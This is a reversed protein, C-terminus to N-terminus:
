TITDSHSCTGCTIAYPGLHNNGVLAKELPLGAASSQSTKKISKRKLSFNNVKRRKKRRLIRKMRSTAITIKIVSIPHNMLFKQSVM